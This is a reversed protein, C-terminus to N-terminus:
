RINNEHVNTLGVRHARRVVVKQLVVYLIEVMACSMARLVVLPTAKIIRLVFPGM